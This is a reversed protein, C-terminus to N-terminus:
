ENSVMGGCNICRKVIEAWEGDHIFSITECNDCHCEVNDMNDLEEIIKIELECYKKINEKLDTMIEGDKTYNIEDDTDLCGMIAVEKSLMEEHTEMWGKIYDNVAIEKAQKNLESFKMTKGGTLKEVSCDQCSEIEKNIRDVEKNYEEKSVIM